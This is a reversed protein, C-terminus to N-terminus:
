LTVVNLEITKFIFVAKSKNVVYEGSLLPNPAPDNKNALEKGISCLFNNM